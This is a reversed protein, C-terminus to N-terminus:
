KYPFSLWLNGSINNRDLDNFKNIKINKIKDFLNKQINEKKKKKNVKIIKDKGNSVMVYKSSNNNKYKINYSKNSNLKNEQKYSNVRNKLGHFNSISKSCRFYNQIDIIKKHESNSTKHNENKSLFKPKKKVLDKMLNVKIKEFTNSERINKINMNKVFNYLESIESIQFKTLLSNIYNFYKKKEKLLYNYKNKMNILDNKSDILEIFKKLLGNYDTYNSIKLIKYLGEFFLNVLQSKEFTYKLDMVSLLINESFTNNKIYTNSNYNRKLLLIIDDIQKSNINKIKIKRKNECIKSNLIKIEKIKNM